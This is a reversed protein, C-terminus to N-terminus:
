SLLLRMLLEYKRWTIVICLFKVEFSKCSIGDFSCVQWLENLWFLNFTRSTINWYRYMPFFAFFAPFFLEKIMMSHSYFLIFYSYQYRTRNITWGSSCNQGKISGALIATLRLSWVNANIAIINSGPMIWCRKSNRLSILNAIEKTSAFILEKSKYYRPHFNPWWEIVTGFDTSFTM